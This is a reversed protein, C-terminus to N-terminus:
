LDIQTYKWIDMPCPTSTYISFDWNFGAMLLGLNMYTAINLYSLLWNAVGLAAIMFLGSLWTKGFGEKKM